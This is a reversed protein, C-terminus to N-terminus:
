KLKRTKKLRKIRKKIKQREDGARIERREGKEIALWPVKVLVPIHVHSPHGYIRIPFPWAFEGFAEGHDATVVTKGGLKKSLKLVYPLVLKLDNKYAKRVRNLDIVGDEILIWPSGIIRGKPHNKVSLRSLEPDSLYWWHPQLFHIIYRKDPYENKTKLAYKIMKDPHVTGIKDDWEYKWVSIVKYVSKSCIKNVWPNSTIYITDSFKGNAFNEKLFEPTSSGRSIRFDVSQGVSEAFTDHRCTDLIILNDWDEKMIYIGKNPRKKYYNAVIYHVFRDKWWQSKNWHYRIQELVYKIKNNLKVDESLGEFKM